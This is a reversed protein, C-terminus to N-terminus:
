HAVRSHGFSYSAIAEDTIEDGTLEAQIQGDHMVYVRHSLHVIEPLDSSVLVVGTDGECIQKIVNYFEQRAGIDVGATPEHFIYVSRDRTFARGLVVKQQNGGSLASVIQRIDRPRIDLRDAIADVTERLRTDRVLGGRMVFRPQDLVELSVNEVVSRNLALAEDRRDQPLYVLGLALMQRPTPQEIVTNNMHITGSALEVLGFCARVLESKGSGVLGAIGVIEGRRVSFSADRVRGDVTYLHDARLAEITPSQMIHPYLRDMQRGVMEQILQEDSVDGIMHTAIVTGDRLVTVRDGLRRVEELRHTIYLLGWGQAKMRDILAFLRDSEEQNLTATPEDLLLAGPKGGLARVIEVVQQEPRSLRAVPMDVDIAVGLQALDQIAQRRMEAKRLLGKQTIERGLFLNEYVKLSPALSFDQLVANIGQARAQAPTQHATRQGKIELVGSDPTIAGLIVNVLTSKGAGNEGLLIHVEGGRIDLSVGKLADVSGFSKSVDRLSVVIENPQVAAARYATV